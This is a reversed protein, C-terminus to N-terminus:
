LALGSFAAAVDARSPTAGQAGLQTTALAGCHCAASLAAEPAMGEALFVTLAAVFCDGAGTTDAVDVQPAAAQSIITGGRLLKAGAGGLTLAVLCSLGALQREYSEFEIENVVILDAREFLAQPVPRVPAANICLKANSQRTTKLITEPSIELQSIIWDAEICPALAEDFLANAGSAVAIQNEGKADVNIFAAGTNANGLRQLAGLAVGHASLNAIAADAHSDEGVCAHMEVNAGLQRAALAQNGGKGGPTTFFTGGSVTEGAVPLRETQIVFDLNISGLVAIKVAQKM